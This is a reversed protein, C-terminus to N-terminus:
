DRHFFDFSYFVLFSATLISQVTMAANTPPLLVQSTQKGGFFKKRIMNAWTYADFGVSIWAIIDREQPSSLYSGYGFVVAKLLMLMRIVNTYGYALEQIDQEKWAKESIKCKTVALPNLIYMGVRFIATASSFLLYGRSQIM